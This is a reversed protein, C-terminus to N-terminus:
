NKTLKHHTFTGRIGEFVFYLSVLSVILQIVGITVIFSNLNDNTGEMRLTILIVMFFALYGIFQIVTCVCSRKYIGYTLASTGVIAIYPAFVDVLPAGIVYSRLTTAVLLASIVIGTIYANRIKKQAKNLDM